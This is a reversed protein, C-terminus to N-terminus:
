GGSSRRGDFEPGGNRASGARVYKDASSRSGGRRFRRSHRPGYGSLRSKGAVDCEHVRPPHTGNGHRRGHAAHPGLHTRGSLDHSFAGGTPAKTASTSANRISSTRSSKWRNSSGPVPVISSSTAM